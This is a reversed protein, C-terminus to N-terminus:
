FSSRVQRIHEDHTAPDLSGNVVFEFLQKVTMVPAGRKGFFETVNWCDM